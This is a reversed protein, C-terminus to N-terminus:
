AFPKQANEIAKQRMTGNLNKLVAERPAFAQLHFEITQTLCSVVQRGRLDM